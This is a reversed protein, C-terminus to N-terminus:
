AWVATLRDGVRGTIRVTGTAGRKAGAVTIPAFHDTHGVGDGEGVAL